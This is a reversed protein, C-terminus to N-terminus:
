LLILENLEMQKLKEKVQKLEQAGKHKQVVAKYPDM